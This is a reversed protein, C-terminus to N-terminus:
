IVVFYYRCKGFPESLKAKKYMFRKVQGSESSALVQLSNHVSSTPVDNPLQFHPILAPHPRMTFHKRVSTNKENSKNSVNKKMSNGPQIAPSKIAKPLLSKNNLAFQLKSIQNSILDIWMKIDYHSLCIVLFRTSTSILILEFCYKTDSITEISSSSTIASMYLSEALENNTFKKIQINIQSNVGSTLVFPHKAVFEFTSNM